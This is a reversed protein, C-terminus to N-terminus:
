AKSFAGWIARHRDRLGAFMRATQESDMGMRRAYRNGLEVDRAMEALAYTEIDFDDTAGLQRLM